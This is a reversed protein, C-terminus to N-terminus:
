KCHSPQVDMNCSGDKRECYTECDDFELCLFSGSDEVCKGNTACATPCGALAGSQGGGSSSTSASGAAWSYTQPFPGGPLLCAQLLLAAVALLIRKM